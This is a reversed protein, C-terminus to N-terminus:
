KAVEVKGYSYPPKLFIPNVKSPHKEIGGYHNFIVNKIESSSRLNDTRRKTSMQSGRKDNRGNNRNGM